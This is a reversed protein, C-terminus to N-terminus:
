SFFLFVEVFFFVGLDLIGFLSLFGKEGRGVLMFFFGLVLLGSFRILVYLRWSGVEFFGWKGDWMVGCLGLFGSSGSFGIGM